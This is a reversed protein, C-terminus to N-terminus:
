IADVDIGDPPFAGVSGPPTATAGNRTTTGTRAGAGDTKVTGKSEDDCDDYDDHELAM